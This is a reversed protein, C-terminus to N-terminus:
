CYLGAREDPDHENSLWRKAAATFEDMDKNDWEALIKEAQKPSFINYDNIRKNSNKGIGGVGYISM